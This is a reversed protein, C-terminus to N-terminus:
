FQIANSHSTKKSFSNRTITSKGIKNTRLSPQNGLRIPGFFYSRQRGYRMIDITVAKHYCYLM